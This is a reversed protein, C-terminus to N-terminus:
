DNSSSCQKATRMWFVLFLVMRTEHQDAGQRDRERLIFGQGIHCWMQQAIRCPKNLDLRSRLMPAIKAYACILAWGSVQKGDLTM